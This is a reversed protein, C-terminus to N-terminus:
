QKNTARAYAEAEALSALVYGGFTMTAGPAASALFGIM